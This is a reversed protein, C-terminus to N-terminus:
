SSSSRFLFLGPQKTPLLSPRYGAFVAPRARLNSLEPECLVGCKPIWFIFALSASMEQNSMFHLNTLLTSLFCSKQRTTWGFLSFLITSIQLCPFRMQLKDQWRRCCEPVQVSSGWFVQLGVSELLQHHTPICLFLQPIFLMQLDDEWYLSHIWLIHPARVQGHYFFSLHQKFIPLPSFLYKVLSSLCSAM